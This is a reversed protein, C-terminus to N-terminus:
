KKVTTTKKVKPVVKQVPSKVTDDTSPLSADTAGKKIYHPALYKQLQFWQVESVGLLKEMKSDCKIERRNEPNALDNEKIYKSLAQTVETRSIQSGTPRGLFECLAETVDVPRSFVSPRKEKQKEPDLKDAKKKERVMKKITGELSAVRNQLSTLFEADVTTTM